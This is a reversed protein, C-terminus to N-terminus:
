NWRSPDNCEVSNIFRGKSRLEADFALGVCSGIKRGERRGIDENFEEPLVARQLCSRSLDGMRSDCEADSVNTFCSRFYSTPVCLAPPLREVMRKIWVSRPVTAGDQLTAPEETAQVPRTPPAVNAVCGRGETFSM